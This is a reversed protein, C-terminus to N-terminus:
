KMSTFSVVVIATKVENFVLMSNTYFNGVNVTLNNANTTLLVSQWHIKILKLGTNTDTSTNGPYDNLFFQIWRKELSATCYVTRIIYM